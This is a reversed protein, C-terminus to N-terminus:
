RNVEKGKELPTSLEHTLFFAFFPGLTFASALTSVRVLLSVLLGEGVGVGIMNSTLSVFAERVGFNGPTIAIIVSFVGSLSVLLAGQLSVHINLARYAFWFTSGNLTISTTTLLFLYVMLRRDQKITMWGDVVQNVLRFLRYNGPLQPIPFLLVLTIGVWIVTFFTILLWIVDGQNLLLISIVMGLLAAMWFTLLYNTALLAAFQTFPLAHRNKLYAARALMGGSLPTLYNGMATIYPLGVWERMRLTVGLKQAYLKLFVGNLGLFVLRLLILIVATEWSLNLLLDLLEPNANLYVGIGIVIGAVVVFPIVGKFKM